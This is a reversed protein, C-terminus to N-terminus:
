VVHLKREQHPCGGHAKAINCNHCLIQIDDPWGRRKLSRLFSYGTGHERRQEAGDDNVHDLALFAVEDEGCCVCRGGYHAIAELRLSRYSARGSARSKERNREVWSQKHQAVREPHKERYGSQQELIEAKKKEYYRKQSERRKVPDKIPM